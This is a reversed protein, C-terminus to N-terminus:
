RAEAPASSPLTKKPPSLAPAYCKGKVYAYGSGICEEATATISSVEVWCGGNLPVQKPMPCQGKGDPLTQGPRPQLPTDQSVAKQESSLQSSVRPATPSTDGVASTGAEPV